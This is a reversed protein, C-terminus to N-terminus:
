LRLSVEGSMFEHMCGDRELRFVGREDVGRATGRLVTEGVQVEAPRDHLVDLATWADRFAAFGAREFEVLMRLLEDIMAGAIANRSPTAVCADAVAAVRQGSAEIVARAAPSLAVNVGIGMVVHAPGSVEARLDILVGGIKRDNLWLDNPWKLGIGRAGARELARAV